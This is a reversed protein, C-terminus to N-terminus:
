SEKIKAIYHHKDKKHIKRLDDYNKSIVINFPSLIREWDTKPMLREDGLDKHSYNENPVSLVVTNSIRLQEKILRRIKKDGFHEFFGQSFVLDFDKNKFPLNTADSISYLVRGKL